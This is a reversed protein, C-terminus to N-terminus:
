PNVPVVLKINAPVPVQDEVESHGILLLKVM